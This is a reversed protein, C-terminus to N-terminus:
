ERSGVKRGEGKRRKKMESKGKARDRFPDKLQDLKACVLARSWKTRSAKVTRRGKEVGRWSGDMWGTWGQEIEEAGRGATVGAQM